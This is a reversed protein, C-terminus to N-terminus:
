YELAYLRNGESDFLPVPASGTEPLCFLAVVPLKRLTVIYNITFNHYTKDGEAIWGMPLIDGTQTFSQIWYILEDAPFEIELDLIAELALSIQVAKEYALGVDKSRVRIQVGPHIVNEGTRMLRGDKTGGTDALIIQDDPKQQTLSVYVPWANGGNAGLNYAILVKRVVEATSYHLRM